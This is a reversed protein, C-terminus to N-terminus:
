LLMNISFASLLQQCVQHVADAGGGHVLLLKRLVDQIKYLIIFEKPRPFHEYLCRIIELIKVQLIPASIDIMAVLWPVLGGVAVAVALKSSRGIMLRLTDLLQPMVQIEQKTFSRGYLDVIQLASERQTLKQELRNHDEALWTDLAQFVGVQVLQDQETLLRLLVDVGKADWLKARTSPSNTVMGILMPVVFGRQAGWRGSREAPHAPVAGGTSPSPGIADTALACLHTIIGASSAAELHVKKNFNSINYLAHLAELQVEPGGVQSLRERSLFPVLTAIAGADKISQLVDHESTLWRLCKMLKVLQPGQMKVLCELHQRLCDKECLFSKVVGDAHAMVLLLTSVKDCLWAPMDSPPPPVVATSASVSISGALVPAATGLPVSLSPFQALLGRSSQPQTVSYMSKSAKEMLAKPDAVSASRSTPGAATAGKLSTPGPSSIGAASRQQLQLIVQKLVLFLRPVIGAQALMRCKYNLPLSAYAELVRWICQLGQYTLRGYMLPSSSPAAAGPTSESASTGDGVMKVLHRIGQCAIFMHLTSQQTFCLQQVFGAAKLRIDGSWNPATYACAAPLLGVLCLCELLRVDNKTLSAVLDLASSVNVANQSELLELLVLVGGEALFLQKFESAQVSRMFGELEMCGSMVSSQISSPRLKHILLKVKGKNETLVPTSSSAGGVAVYVEAGGSSAGAYHRGSGSAAMSPHGEAGQGFAGTLSGANFLGGSHQASSRLGGRGELAATGVQTPAEDMWSRLLEIHSVVNPARGLTGSTGAGTPSGGAQISQMFDTLPGEQGASSTSANLTETRQIKSADTSARTPMRASSHQNISGKEAAVGSTSIRKGEAHGQMSTSEGSFADEVNPDSVGVSPDSDLCAAAIVTTTVGSLAGAGGLAAAAGSTDSSRDDEETEEDISRDAGKAAPDNEYAIMRSVVSHVTEHAENVKGSTATSSHRDRSQKWTKRTLTRRCQLWEHGLLMAATPRKNPDKSFCKFLFDELLPSIEEPLPPHADQVIRFLASMPQLDFYPPSGTLLEVILCGVSWIDSASTVQTMEIVEPAMWYPTGVVHQQLEGRNDELEGLKTAVGFDALKVVGEKSQLINAGKIDRHVVGQEHLYQLGALVQTTYLAAVAEDFTGYKNPRIVNALSGNEMYELIIYLHTRSKFSGQYKVINSHNLTKLLDIEGMVSQLNGNAVGGLAIQKIAVPEGSKLDMGKYVQGYAGRGLEEGITFRDSLVTKNTSKPTATKANSAWTRAPPTSGASAPDYAVM